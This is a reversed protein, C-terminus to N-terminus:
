GAAGDAAPVRLSLDHNKSRFRAFSFYSNEKGTASTNATENNAGVIIRIEQGCHSCQPKITMNPASCLPPTMSTPSHGTISGSSKRRKRFNKQRIRRNERGRPTLCYKKDTLIRNRRRGERSCIASCYKHGRWCHECYQFRVGCIPCIKEIGLM